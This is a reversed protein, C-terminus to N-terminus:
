APKILDFRVGFVRVAYIYDTDGVASFEHASGGNLMFEDGATLMTGNYDRATGQLVFTLEEGDHGHWPFTAGGAVRVFGTDAGACAPGAKFHQLHIAPQMQEWQAPRDIDGLLQRARDMDVNFIKSMRPAFREFRGRGISTRLRDSIRSPPAKDAATPAVLHASVENLAAIENAVDQNVNALASIERAEDNELLGLVYLPLQQMIKDLDVTV